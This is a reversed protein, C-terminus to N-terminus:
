VQGEGLYAQGLWDAADVNGTQAARELMSLGESPDQRDLLLHGAAALAQPDGSEAARTM